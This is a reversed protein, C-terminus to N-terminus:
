IQRVSVLEGKELIKLGAPMAVIGDADPLASIHASGHYEVPEVFGDGTIRVPIWAMREAFRRMFSEKMPLRINLPEWNFGMMKYILPRVLLEFKTFSSVPNGPLGFVLTDPHVGFTTPKGPQVAVRSFLIKVGARELVSPVFDFDGMSVGGTIVVIDNESIAKAVIGFTLDEDDGAIGYYTGSAGARETQALIQGANSNRIRSGVPYEHPEVLEDGSSIVALKPRRSVEVTVSGTSAMVAIDQPRILRSTNLVEAGRKIDEGKFAINEKTFPGRFRVKGNPLLESNEVMIVCEAGSPVAAGTMIRSCQLLGLSKEPTRGASITEIIELEFEQESKRCAFGDVSAKNFPPMDIDSVVSGALVRGLSNMFSVKESGTSFASNMVIEYAKEFTIMEM